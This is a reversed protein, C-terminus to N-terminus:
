ATRQGRLTGVDDGILQVGVRSRCTLLVEAQGDGPQNRGGICSGRGGGEQQQEQIVNTGM